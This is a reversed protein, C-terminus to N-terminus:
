WELMIDSDDNQKFKSHEEVTIDEMIDKTEEAKKPRYSDEGIREPMGGTNDSSKPM